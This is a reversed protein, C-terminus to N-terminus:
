SILNNISNPIIDFRSIVKHENHRQRVWRNSNIARFQNKSPWVFRKPAAYKVPENTVDIHAPTIFPSSITRVLVDVLTLNM